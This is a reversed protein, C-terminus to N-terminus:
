QLTSIGRFLDFVDRICTGPLISIKRLGDRSRLYYFFLYFIGTPNLPLKSLPALTRTTARACVRKYIFIHIRTHIPLYLSETPSFIISLSQSLFFGNPRLTWGGAMLGFLNPIIGDTSRRPCVVRRRRWVERGRGTRRRGGTRRRDCDRVRRGWGRCAVSSGTCVARTNETIRNGVTPKAKLHLGTWLVLRTIVTTTPLPYKFLHSYVRTRIRQVASIARFTVVAFLTALCHLLRM